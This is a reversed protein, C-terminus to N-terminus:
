RKGIWREGERKRKEERESGCEREAEKTDRQIGTKRKGRERHIKKEIQRSKRESRKWNWKLKSSKKHSYVLNNTM